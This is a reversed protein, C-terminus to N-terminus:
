RCIKGDTILDLFWFKEVRALDIEEPCRLIFRRVHDRPIWWTDGGQEAGRDTHRRSAALLGRRIWALVKHADVGFARALSTASFGDLNSKIRLRTVKVAVAGCSRQFGAESLKRQIGSYALHGFRVIIREEEDSWPQEKVRGLGLELARRSIAHAPWGLRASVLKIARRDGQRRRRYAEAILADTVATPRYKKKWYGRGM